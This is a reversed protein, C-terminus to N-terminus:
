PVPFRVLQCIMSSSDVSGVSHFVPVAELALHTNDFLSSRHARMRSDFTRNGCYARGGFRISKQVRCSSVIYGMRKDPSHVQLLVVDQRSIRRSELHVTAM